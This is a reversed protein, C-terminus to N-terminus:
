EPIEVIEEKIAGINPQPLKSIIYQPTYKSKPITKSRRGKPALEFIQSYSMGLDTGIDKLTRYNKNLLENNNVIVKCNWCLKNTNSGKRRGM